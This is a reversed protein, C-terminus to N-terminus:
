GNIYKSLQMKVIKNELTLIHNKKRLDDIEVVYRDNNLKENELILMVQKIGETFCEKQENLHKVMNIHQINLADKLNDVEKRLYQIEKKLTYYEDKKPSLPSIKEM